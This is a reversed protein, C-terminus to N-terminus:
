FLGIQEYPDQEPQEKRTQRPRYRRGTEVDGLDSLAFDACKNPRRIGQESLVKQHDTCYLVDGDICFACYRCYQTM